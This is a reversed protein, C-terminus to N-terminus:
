RHFTDRSCYASTNRYMPRLCRKGRYSALLNCANIRSMVPQFTFERSWKLLLSPCFTCSIPIDYHFPFIISQTISFILKEAIKHFSCARIMLKPILSSIYIYNFVFFWISFLGQRSKVRFPFLIYFITWCWHFWYAEIRYPNSIEM